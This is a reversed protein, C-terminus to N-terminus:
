LGADPRLASIHVLGDPIDFLGLRGTYPVFECPQPNKFVWGVAGWEYWERRLGGPFAPPIDPLILGTFDVVGVIGGTPFEGPFIARLRGCARQGERMDAASFVRSAYIALPGRYHTAWSRNEINKAGSIILSAWPQRVALAKM